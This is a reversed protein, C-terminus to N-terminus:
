SQEERIFSALQVRLNEKARFILIKVKELSCNLIESIQAYSFGQYQRLELAEKQEYPLGAIAQRVLLARESKALSECSDDRHDPVDLSQFQHNHKSFYGASVTQKRKRMRNFCLNRAITFLWTSFTRDPDYSNKHKIMAVFVDGAVEEADSRNHLLRCCFNMIRVKNLQFLQVMAQKEGAQCAKMLEEDTQQMVHGQGKM